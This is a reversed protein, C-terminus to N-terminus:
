LVAARPEARTLARTKADQWFLESLGYECPEFALALLREGKLGLIAILGQRDPYAEIAFYRVGAQKLSPQLADLARLRNRDIGIDAYMRWFEALAMDLSPDDRAVLADYEVRADPHLLTGSGTGTVM